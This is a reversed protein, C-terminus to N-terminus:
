CGKCSQSIGFRGITARWEDMISKVRYGVSIIVDLNYYYPAKQQFESIGFKKVCAEPFLEKTSFIDQIHENITSVSKGYLLSLQQQTLWVSDNELRVDLRIEGGDSEYIVINGNDEMILEARSSSGECLYM